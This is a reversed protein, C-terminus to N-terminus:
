SAYSYSKQLLHWMFCHYVRCNEENFLYEIIISLNLTHMYKIKYHMLM